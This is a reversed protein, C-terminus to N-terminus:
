LTSEYEAAILAGVLVLTYTFVAIVAAMAQGGVNEGKTLGEISIQLIGKMWQPPSKLFYKIFSGNMLFGMAGVARSQLPDVSHSFISDGLFSLAFSAVALQASTLAGIVDGTYALAISEATFVLGFVLGLIIWGSTKGTFDNKVNPLNECYVYWNFGAHSIDESLFRGIGAEYFRARMYTLGSEDDDVHGLNACYRGKPDGTTNGSRIGGWADYSRLDGVSYSSGSKSLTAIM